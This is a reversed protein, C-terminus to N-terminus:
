LSAIIRSHDLCFSRYIIFAIALILINIPLLKTSCFFLYEKGRKMGSQVSRISFLGDLIIGRIASAEYILKRPSSKRRNSSQRYMNQSASRLICLDNLTLNYGVGMLSAMLFFSAKVMNPKSQRSGM